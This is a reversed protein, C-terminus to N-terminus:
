DINSNRVVITKIKNEFIDASEATQVEAPLNNWLRVVSPYFSHLHANVRSNPLIYVNSKRHNM